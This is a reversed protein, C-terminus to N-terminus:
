LKIGDIKVHFLDNNLINDTIHKVAISKQSYMDDLPTGSVPSIVLTNGSEYTLDQFSPRGLITYITKVAGPIVNDFLYGRDSANLFTEITIDYNSEKWNSCMCGIPDDTWVPDGSTTGDIGYISDDELTTGEKDKFKLHCMIYDEQPNGGNHYIESDYIDVPVQANSSWLIFDRISGAFYDAADKALYIYQQGSSVRQYTAFVQSSTFTNGDLYLTMTTNPQDWTGVVTHWENNNYSNNSTIGFDTATTGLKRTRFVVKNTTTLGIEWNRYGDVVYESCIPGFTGQGTTKFKVGISFSGSTPIAAIEAYDNTGDFKLCGQPIYINLNNSM